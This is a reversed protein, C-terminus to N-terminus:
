MCCYCMDACKYMDVVNKSLQKFYMDNQLKTSAHVYQNCFTHNVFLIATINNNISVNWHEINNQVNSTYRSTSQQQTPQALRIVM